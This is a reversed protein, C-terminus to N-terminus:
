LLFNIKEKNTPTLKLLLQNCHGGAIIDYSINNEDLFESVKIGKVALSADKIKNPTIGADDVMLIGNTSIRKIILKFEEFIHDKDNVSDLLVFQYTDKDNKLYEISDKLIWEVNNANKCIDKSIKISEPNCDISKLKGNEKIIESIHRTSEHKEKYSRITGTEVCNLYTFDNKLKTITNRVQIM